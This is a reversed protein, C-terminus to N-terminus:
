ASAEKEMSKPFAIAMKEVDIKGSMLRSLLRDRSLKLNNNVLSIKDKSILMPKVKNEFEDIVEHIPIVLKQYKLLDEFQYNSIGTSQIQYTGVMETDYYNKFFYKLFFPSCLTNSVRILKCFSACIVKNDFYRLLENTILLTRGLLQGKSGGSVEFIIDGEILKRSKYNSEKHYRFVEKIFNGSSLKPIDTGRIVYAGIPHNLSNNEEGWGGGIYYNVLEGLKKVEWGAPVGKVIKVKEYGPFRLRVFWERYLEDAMKELIAIRRNNNEILDDYASLIAAIKKQIRLPPLLIKLRQLDGSTIQSQASGTDLFRLNYVRFFYLLYKMDSTNTKSNFIISLNTIWTKSPAIKVDGTGGVGRAVVILKPEEYMYKNYLGVFRYGTYIPFGTKGEHVLNNSEPMKGYCFSFINGLRIEKYVM